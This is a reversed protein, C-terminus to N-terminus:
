VQKTLQDYMEGLPLTWGYRGRLLKLVSAAIPFTCQCFGHIHVLEVQRRRLIQQKYGDAVNMIMVQKNLAPHGARCKKKKKCQSPTKIIMEDTHHCWLSTYNINRLHLKFEFGVSFLTDNLWM